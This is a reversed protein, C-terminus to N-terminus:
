PGYSFFGGEDKEQQKSTPMISLKRSQKSKKEMDEIRVGPMVLMRRSAPMVSMMRFLHTVEDKMKASAMMSVITKERKELVKPGQTDDFEIKEIVALC